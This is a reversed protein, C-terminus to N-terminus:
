NVSLSKIHFQDTKIVIRYNQSIHAQNGTHKAHFEGGVSFESETDATQNERANAIHEVADNRARFLVSRSVFLIEAYLQIGEAIHYAEADYGGNEEIEAPDM